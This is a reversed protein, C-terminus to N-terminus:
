QVMERHHDKTKPQTGDQRPLHIPDHPEEFFRHRLCSLLKRLHIRVPYQRSVHRFNPVGEVRSAEAASFDLLKSQDPTPTSSRSDREVVAPKPCIREPSVHGERNM